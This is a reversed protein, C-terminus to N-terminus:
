RITNETCYNCINKNSNFGRFNSPGNDPKLFRTCRHRHAATQGPCYSVAPAIFFCPMQVVPCIQALVSYIQEEKQYGFSNLCVCKSYVLIHLNHRGLWLNIEKSTTNLNQTLIAFARESSLPQM